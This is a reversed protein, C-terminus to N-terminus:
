EEHPLWEYQIDTNKFIEEDPASTKNKPYIRSFGSEDFITLKFNYNHLLSDFAIIADKAAATDSLTNISISSNSSKQSLSSNSNKQSISSSSMSSMSERVDLVSQDKWKIGFLGKIEDMINRIIIETVTMSDKGCTYEYNFDETEFMIRSNESLMIYRGIDDKTKIFQTIKIQGRPDKLIYPKVQADKFGCKACVLSSLFQSSQNPVELIYTTIQATESCEPCPIEHIEPKNTIQM